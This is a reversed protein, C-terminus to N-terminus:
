SQRHHLNSLILSSHLVVRLGQLHVWVVAIGEVVSADGPVATPVVLSGDYVEAMSDGQVGGICVEKVVSSEGAPLHDTNSREQKERSWVSARAYARYLQVRLGDERLTHHTCTETIPGYLM